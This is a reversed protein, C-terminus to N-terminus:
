GDHIRGCDLCVIMFNDCIHQLVSLEKHERNFLSRKLVRIDSQSIVQKGLEIKNLLAEQTQHPLGQMERYFSYEISERRRSPPFAGATSKFNRLTQYSYGTEHELQGALEGFKINAYNLLDGIAFQIAKSAKGLVKCAALCVEYSPNNSIALGNSM